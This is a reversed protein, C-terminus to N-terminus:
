MRTVRGIKGSAVVQQIEKVLPQFRTWVARDSQGACDTSAIPLFEKLPRVYEMLFVGQERAINILARAERATTTFPQYVLIPDLADADGRTACLFIEGM